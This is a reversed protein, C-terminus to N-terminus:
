SDSGAPARPALARHWHWASLASLLAALILFVLEHRMSTLPVAQGRYDVWVLNSRLAVSVQLAAVGFCVAFLWFLISAIHAFRRRRLEEAGAPAVRAEV